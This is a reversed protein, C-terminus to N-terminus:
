NNHPPLLPQPPPKAGTSAPPQGTPDNLFPQESLSALQNARNILKDLERVALSLRKIPDHKITPSPNHPLTPTPTKM